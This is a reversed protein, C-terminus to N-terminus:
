YHSLERRQCHTLFIIGGNPNREKIENEYVSPHSLRGAHPLITPM